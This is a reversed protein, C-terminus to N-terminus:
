SKNIAAQLVRKIGEYYEVYGNLDAYEPIFGEKVAQKVAAILMDETVEIM